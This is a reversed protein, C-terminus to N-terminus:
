ENEYDSVENLEKDFDIFRIKDESKLVEVFNMVPLIYPPFENAKMTLDTVLSRLYPYLIAIANTTLLESFETSENATIEAIKYDFFGKISVSLEYPSSINEFDGMVCDLLVMGLNEKIAVTASFNPQIDYKETEDIEFNPNKQYKMEDVYYDKFQITAM